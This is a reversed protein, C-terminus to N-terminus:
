RSTLPSREQTFTGYANGGAWAHVMARKAIKERGRHGAGHETRARYRDEDAGSSLTDSGSSFHGAGRSSDPRQRRLSTPPAQRLPTKVAWIAFDAHLSLGHDDQHVREVDPQAQSKEREGPRKHLEALPGLLGTM